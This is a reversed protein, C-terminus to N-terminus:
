LDFLLKNIVARVGQPKFTVRALELGMGNAGM